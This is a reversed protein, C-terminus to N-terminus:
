KFNKSPLKLMVSALDILFHGLDKFKSKQAPLLNIKSFNIDLQTECHYIISDHGNGRVKALVYFSQLYLFHM